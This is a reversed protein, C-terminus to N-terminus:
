AMFHSLNIHSREAMSHSVRIHTGEAMSHSVRFHDGEARSILCGLIVEKPSSFILLSLFSYFFNRFPLLPFSLSLSFSRALASPIFLTKSSSHSPFSLLPATFSIFVLQTRPSLSFISFQIALFYGLSLFSLFCGHRRSTMLLLFSLSLSLFVWLM